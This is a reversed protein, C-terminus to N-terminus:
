SEEKVYHRKLFVYIFSQEMVQNEWVIILFPNKKLPM